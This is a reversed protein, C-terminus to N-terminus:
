PSITFTGGRSRILDVLAPKKAIVALDGATFRTNGQIYVRKIDCGSEILARAIENHGNMIAKFVPPSEDNDADPLAGKSLLLKVMELDGSYTAIEIPTKLIMKNKVNLDAGAEILLRALDPRGKELALHLPNRKYEDVKNIGKKKLILERAEDFREKQMAEMLGWGFGLHLQEVFPTLASGLSIFLVVAGFIGAGKLLTAVSIPGVRSSIIKKYEETMEEAIVKGGTTELSPIIVKGVALPIFIFCLGLAFTVIDLIYLSYFGAIRHDGYPSVIVEIEQDPKFWEIIHHKSETVEHREGNKSTFEFHPYSMISTHYGSEMNGFTDTTTSHSRIEEVVYYKFVGKAREPANKVFNITGLIEWGGYLSIAIGGLIFAGLMYKLFKVM